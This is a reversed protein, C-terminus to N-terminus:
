EPSGRSPLGGLRMGVLNRIGNAFERFPLAKKTPLQLRKLAIMGDITQVMIGRSRDLALVTGPLPLRDALCSGVPVTMFEGACPECELITLKQQGLWTFAGPWPQYARVRADIDLAGLSWEFGGDEKNIMHCYSPEGEQPVAIARGAEIEALVDVVLAAGIGAAKDSLTATTEKGDLPIRGVAFIDGCDMERALRQISVGTWADRNLIAQPIPACGRYLPLLSPHINIGGQPFLALFKPGFIK